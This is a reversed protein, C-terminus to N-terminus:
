AYIMENKEIDFFFVWTRRREKKGVSSINKEREM